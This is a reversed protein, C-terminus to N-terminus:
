GAKLVKASSATVACYVNQITQAFNQASFRCVHAQASLSLKKRNEEDFLVTDLAISMEAEDHFVYGNVGHNLVGDLCRDAKAIVPLGSALAEIYTLGQTESQSASIFAEGLRYYDAVQEWTQEGAFIVQETIGFAFAMQELKQRYPGDGVILLKVNKRSPLYNKMGNLVENINKEKSVRGVSVIIKDSANISHKKRLADVRGPNIGADAFKELNIGTPVISIDQTVGYSRM